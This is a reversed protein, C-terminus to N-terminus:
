QQHSLSIIDLNTHLTSVTGPDCPQCYAQLLSPHSFTGAQQCTRKHSQLVVAGILIHNLPCQYICEDGYDGSCDGGLSVNGNTNIATLAVVPCLVPECPKPLGTWHRTENCVRFLAPPEGAPFQFGAKCRQECVDGFTGACAGLQLGNAPPTLSPCEVVREITVLAHSLEDIANIFFGFGLPDTSIVASFRTDTNYNLQLGLKRNCNPFPSNPPHPPPNPPQLNLIPPQSRFCVM